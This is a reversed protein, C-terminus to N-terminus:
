GRRPGWQLGLVQVDHGRVRFTTTEDVLLPVGAARVRQHFLERGDFLDHNGECMALGHRPDIARVMELADPLDSMSFDILDGTLLVLDARLNNVADAISRLLAGNTFKGVHADTVHAITMGDLGRPLGRLPVELPRIRFEDLQSLSRIVAGGTLVVPAAAVAAGLVQRRTLTPREAAEGNPDPSPEPSPRRFLDIVRSVLTGIGSGLLILLLVPMVLLHWVYAAAVIAEPINTLGPTNMRRILIVSAFGGLMTLMFGALGARWWRAHRLPRLRRDAWWWWLLDVIPLVVILIRFM